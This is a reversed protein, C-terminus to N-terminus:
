ASAMNTVMWSKKLFLFKEALITSGEFLGQLEKRTMLRTEECNIRAQVWSAERPMFGLHFNHHLFTRLSLPLILFFPFYFHPEIPFLRCPTQIFHYRALKAVNDAFVRQASYNGVHEIVSNSHVIDYSSSRLSAANLANGAYAQVKLGNIERYEENVPPLNVVEVLEIKDVPLHAANMEWFAVTGGIDLIRIKKNSFAGKAHLEDIYSAFLKVRRSRANSSFSQPNSPDSKM